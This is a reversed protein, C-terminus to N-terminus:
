KDKLLISWKLIFESLSFYKDLFKGQINSIEQAYDRDAMLRKMESILYNQDDSTIPFHKSFEPYLQQRDHYTQVVPCGLAVAELLSLNYWDEFNAVNSSFYFRAQSLVQKYHELNKSITSIAQPIKVRLNDNGEGLIVSINDLHQLMGNGVNYGNM